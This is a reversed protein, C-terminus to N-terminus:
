SYVGTITTLQGATVNANQCAPTTLGQVPGFCVQHNGTPIDTWMGWDNRPVGDVSITGAVAPSTIVRLSGRQTFTANVVTTQGATITVQQTAPETYGEVHLFRVNYQGPALKLWDLGWSNAIQGAVLIQSGLSPQTTVRLEGKGTEGPAGPNSAYTGTVTTLQGANVMANQCSPPNFDAVPGFCVQHNGTSVDTWRGWNNRAVGDVTITGPVAPSTIVRLSGRESFTANVTTTQGSTITVQQPAPETYGEVHTFSLTYTGPQLKLWDLGWSNAIQGDILIQSALAPSTTVRLMGLEGGFIYSSGQDVNVGVDDFPAGAVVTVGSVAVSDGLRDDAAGDSATLKATETGSAWGGGPEVFVYASGQDANPAVNDRPAGVVVTDGSVGVSSGFLDIPGGDSATLKATETGSAWGGGPEVFVYASGQDTFPAVNDRPSGIVVTDGSVAVSYGLRDVAAGDSATLKATETGSVWGGGPEVFVYASGPTANPDLEDGPVGAVVTDGSVAVSSGLRDAVLGDSAILRARETGSAWGGGPEVFVYASGQNAKPPVNDLRAGVVVTDGSVAVSYGFQDGAAGDSATLKARETGSAWGGGPEVFVYASGQDANAGADDLYTGVVVTDGSVAVSSGFQDGAAGDSATLKATETGSAWGGGAEVFVYASGQDADAGVDDFPAGVVVTNGSVAVSYGLQDVAAGDSAALKAQQFFPDITLPYRAGTDEVRMLLTTDDLALRAPLTRGTADWAALGQYRLSVERGDLAFSLDTTSPELSARLTGSLTLALTLPGSSRGVPPAALSFVQELGLPGNVYWETLVGRRYEIRNRTAEPRAPAVPSLRSGYGLSRLSLGLRGAGAVVVVGGQDFDAVLGHSRNESRFGGATTTARYALRDRGLVGSIAAHAAAPM